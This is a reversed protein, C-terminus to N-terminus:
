NEIGYLDVNELNVNLIFYKILHWSITVEYKKFSTLKALTSCLKFQSAAGGNIFTVNEV